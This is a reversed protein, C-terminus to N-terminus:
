YWWLSEVLDVKQSHIKKKAMQISTSAELTCATVVKKWQNSTQESNWIEKEQNFKWFM